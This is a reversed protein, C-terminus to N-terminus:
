LERLTRPRAMSVLREVLKGLEATAKNIERQTFAYSEYNATAFDYVGVTKFGM